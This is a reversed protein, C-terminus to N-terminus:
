TPHEAHNVVEAILRRTAEGHLTYTIQRGRRERRVLRADRLHRLHRAIITSETSIAEALFAPTRDGERLLVLIHMRHEYAMARLVVVARDLASRTHDPDATSM